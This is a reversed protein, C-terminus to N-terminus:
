KEVLHEALIETMGIIPIDMEYHELGEEMVLRCNACATVITEVNLEDLQSKKRKFV